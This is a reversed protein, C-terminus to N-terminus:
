GLWRSAPLAKVTKSALWKKLDPFWVRRTAPGLVVVAL